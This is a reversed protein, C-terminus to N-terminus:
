FSYSCFILYNFFSQSEVGLKGRLLNAPRGLLCSLMWLFILLLWCTQVCRFFSSSDSRRSQHNVSTTEGKERQFNDHSFLIKPTPRWVHTWRRGLYDAKRFLAGKREVSVQGETIPKQAALLQVQTRYRTPPVGSWICMGMRPAWSTALLSWSFLM